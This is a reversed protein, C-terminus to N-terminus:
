KILIMKKVDSFNGASIKYFYIGSSLYSGNFQVSQFGANQYGNILTAVEKGLIDYVKLTVLGNKPIVYNITTVPNFPNPYNQYLEYSDAIFYSNNGSAAPTFNTLKLSGTVTYIQLLTKKNYDMTFSGNADEDSVISFDNDCSVAFTSDNLITLGEPKDQGWDWGNAMLDLYFTKQVPQYGTIITISDNNLQEIRKGNFVEQTVPSAGTLNIKFLKNVFQDNRFGQEMILFENNNIAVLDALKYDRHRIQGAPAEHFYLFTRSQNTAPDIELIRHVKSNNGATSNPNYMASQLIAYIKGNPTRAVGEFGRNPRRYKIITDIQINFPASVYPRYRNIVQGTTKNINWVTSGYEESIWLSNNTGITIGESDIGWEDNPLVTVGSDSYAIEGTNGFGVPNPLGSVFNGSPNKFKISDLLAITDGQVKVRYIKPVYGPIAFIKASNGSNLGEADINPGRDSVMYFERDSGPIYFLGSGISGEYINRGAYVGLLHPTKYVLCELKTVNPNYNMSRLSLIYKLNGICDNPMGPSGGKLTDIALNADVGFDALTMATPKTLFLSAGAPVVNYGGSLTNNTHAKPASLSGQNSAGHSIGHLHVEGAVTRLQLADSGVAINFQNGNLYTTDTASKKILISYGYKNTDQIFVSSDGTIVILLGAPLNAWYPNNSFTLPSQPNGSSSFDRLTFNRLDTNPQIVLLEVWDTKQTFGNFYENVVVAQSFTESTLALTIIIVAAFFKFNRFMKNKM